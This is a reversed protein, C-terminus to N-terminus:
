KVEILSFSRPQMDIDIAIPLQANRQSQQGDINLAISKNEHGRLEVRPSEGQDACNALVIGIRGDPAQWTASQVLPEEGAGFDRRTVNGVPWPRLMRGYVLFDRAIGARFRNMRKAWDLIATQDPIARTWAQDWDYELLGKDRLTFNVMYGNVIARGVSLRLAEDNVRNGFFGAHGNCYEHYLFSYL